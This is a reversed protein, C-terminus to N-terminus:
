LKNMETEKPSGTIVPGYDTNPSHTASALTWGLPSFSM